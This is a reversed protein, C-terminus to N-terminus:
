DRVLGAQRALQEVESVMEILTLMQEREITLRSREQGTALDFEHRHFEDPADDHQNDYRLINHGGRVHAHYRYLIGRVEDHHRGRRVDLHKTVDIVIGSRCIIM